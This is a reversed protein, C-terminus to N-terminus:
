KKKSKNSAVFAAGALVTIASVAALVASSGTSPSTVSSSSNSNTAPTATTAAAPAVTTDVVPNVKSGNDATTSEAVVTSGCTISCTGYNVAYDGDYAENPSLYADSAIGFKAVGNAGQKVRFTASYINGSSEGLNYLFAFAEHVYDGELETASASSAHMDLKDNLKTSSVFEVLSSDFTIPLSGSGLENCDGNVGVIVTIEDGAKASAPSVSLVVNITKTGTTDAVVDDNEAVDDAEVVDVDEVVGTAAEAEDDSVIVVDMAFAVTCLSAVLAIALMLVTMLKALKM